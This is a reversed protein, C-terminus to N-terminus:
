IAGESTIKSKNNPVTCKKIMKITLVNLAILKNIKNLWYVDAKESQM